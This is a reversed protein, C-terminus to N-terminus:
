EAQEEGSIVSMGAKDDSADGNVNRRLWSTEM